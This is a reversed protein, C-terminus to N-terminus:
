VQVGNTGTVVVRLGEADLNQLPQYVEADVERWSFTLVISRICAKGVSFMAASLDSGPKFWRSEVMSIFTADDFPEKHESILRLSHLKPALSISTSQHRLSSMLHSSIPSRQHSYYDVQDDIELHLISPMAQLVAILDVDSVSLGHLTFTTITCSSTTIFSILTNTAYTRQTSGKVVLETLSPLRLSSFVMESCSGTLSGYEVSQEMITLATINHWTGQVPPDQVEQNIRKLELSLSKLSPCNNLINALQTPSSLGMDMLFHLSKLQNFPANPPPVVTTSLTRLKPAHEFVDLVSSEQDSFRRVDLELLEPFHLQSLKNSFSYLHYARYTFSKWRDAHQLLLDLSPLEDKRELDLSLKLKWKRSRELYLAVMSSLEDPEGDWSLLVVALNAWLGSSKLALDRWRACVSSVTMAPLYPIAEMGEEDNFDYLRNGVSDCVLQLIRFLVENPLKRMPSLLSCLKARQTKLQRKQAEIIMIQDHLRAIESDHDEIDKDAVALIRKVGEAQEPTIVSPGFDFRLYHHLQSIEAPSLNVRIQLTRACRACLSTM